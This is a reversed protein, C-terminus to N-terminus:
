YDIKNAEKQQKEIKIRMTNNETQLTGLSVTCKDLDAQIKQYIAKVSAIDNLNSQALKQFNQFKQSIEQFQLQFQDRQKRVEECSMTKNTLEIIKLNQEEITKTMLNSKSKM